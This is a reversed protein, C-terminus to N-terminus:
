LFYRNSMKMSRILEPHKTFKISIVDYLGMNSYWLIKEVDKLKRKNEYLDYYAKVSLILYYILVTTLMSILFAALYYIM